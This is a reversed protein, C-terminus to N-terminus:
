CGQSQEKEREGDGSRRQIFVRLLSLAAPTMGPIRSAQGLTAPEHQKLKQRIENSLGPLDDYGLDPPVAIHELERFRDVEAMQRALYGEYTVEIEM